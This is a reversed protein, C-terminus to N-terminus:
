FTNILYFQAEDRLNNTKVMWIGIKTWLLPLCLMVVCDERVIRREQAQLLLHQQQQQQDDDIREGGGGFATNSIL